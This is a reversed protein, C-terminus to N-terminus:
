CRRFRGVRGVRLLARSTAKVAALPRVVLESASMLIRSREDVDDEDQEYDEHDGGRDQLGSDIDTNWFGRVTLSILSSRRTMEM